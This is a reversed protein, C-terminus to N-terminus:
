KLLKRTVSKLSKGKGRWYGIKNGIWVGVGLVLLEIVM